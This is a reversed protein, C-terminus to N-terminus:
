SASILYLACKPHSLFKDNGLSVSVISNLLLHFNPREQGPKLLPGLFTRAASDRIGNRTNFHYFGTGYRGNPANFDNTRPIGVQECAEVFGNSYIDDLGASSTRVIGTRGHYSVNPGDFDEMRMYIELAKKWTWKSGMGWRELDIPLARVYLMANHIGCGGLAKAVNVDPYDWHYKPTNAVNTWYFPVDFPTM